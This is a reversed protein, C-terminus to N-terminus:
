EFFAKVPTSFGPLVDPLTVIDGNHYRMPLEEARFVGLSETDPDIIIVVKVGADLYEQGKEIVKKLRDSPLRVEIVLEPAFEFPGDPFEQDAPLLAHSVYLLDPGRYSVPDNHARIFADNTAVRGLNQLKLYDYLIGYAKGSIRGHKGGPMPLRVLQGLVLEVGDTDGYDRLFEEASMLPTTTATAPMTATM